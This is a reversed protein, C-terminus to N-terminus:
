LTGTTPMLSMEEITSEEPIKLASVLAQAVTAPSIMKKRPAEPWLVDWIATDTAGPLLAIVRIGQERLEERLTNTFGLAGHKSANYAALGPFTRKAAISLNNVIVSGRKMLPLSAKTVLFMGTLNTAVVDNWEKASLQSVPLNPHAIGANNVLIDLRRFKKRVAVLM